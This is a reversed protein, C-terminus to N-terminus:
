LAGLALRHMLVRGPDRIRHTRDTLQWLAGLVLRHMLVRHTDQGSLGAAQTMFCRAVFPANLGGSTLGKVLTSIM